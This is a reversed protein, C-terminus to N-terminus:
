KTGETGEANMQPYTHTLLDVSTHGSEWIAQTIPVYEDKDVSWTCVELKPPLHTLAMILEEVTM